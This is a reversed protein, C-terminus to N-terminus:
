YYNECDYITNVFVLTNVTKKNRIELGNENVLVFADM